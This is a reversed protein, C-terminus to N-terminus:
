HASNGPITTKEAECFPYKRGSKGTMASFTKPLTSSFILIINEWFICL